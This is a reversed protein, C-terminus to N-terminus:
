DIMLWDHVGWGSERAPQGAPLLHLVLPRSKVVAVVDVAQEPRYYTYLSNGGVASLGGGDPKKHVIMQLVDGVM